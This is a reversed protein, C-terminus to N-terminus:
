LPLDVHPARYLHLYAAAAASLNFNEASVERCRRRIEESPSLAVESAAAHLDHSDFYFGIKRSELLSRIGKVHRNVVVPLGCALYEAVKLGTMTRAIAYLYEHGVPVERFPVISWDAANLFRPVLSPACNIQILHTQSLGFNTWIERFHAKNYNSLLLLVANPDRELFVKLLRCLLVPDHWYGLAGSYVFLVEAAIGLEARV